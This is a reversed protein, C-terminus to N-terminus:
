ARTFQFRPRPQNAPRERWGEVLAVTPADANDVSMQLWTAGERRMEAARERFWQRREDRTMPEANQAIFDPRNDTM